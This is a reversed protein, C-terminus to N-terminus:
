QFSMNGQFATFISDLIKRCAVPSCHVPLTPQLSLLNINYVIYQVVRYYRAVCYLLCKQNTSPYFVCKLFISWSRSLNLLLRWSKCVLCSLLTSHRVLSSAVPLKNYLKLLSKHLCNCCFQSKVRELFCYSTHCFIDFSVQIGCPLMYLVASHSGVPLM